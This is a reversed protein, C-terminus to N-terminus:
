RCRLNGQLADVPKSCDQEAIPRNRQMEPARPTPATAGVYSREASTGGASAGQPSGFAERWSPMSSCATTTALILLAAALRYIM